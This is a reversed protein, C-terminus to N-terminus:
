IKVKNLLVNASKVDLHILGQGHVCALASALDRTLKVAESIQLALRDEHLLKHLTGHQMLELVLGETNDDGCVGLLKVINPHNLKKLAEAERWVLARLDKKTTGGGALVNKFACIGILPLEIRYVRAFAGSGLEDQLEQERVSVQPVNEIADIQCLAACTVEPYGQQRIQRLEAEAEKRMQLTRALDARADTVAREAALIADAEKKRRKAQQLAGEAVQVDEQANQWAVDAAEKRRVADNKRAGADLTRGLQVALKRREEVIPGIAEMALQLDEVDGSMQDKM